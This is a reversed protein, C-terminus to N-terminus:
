YNLGIMCSEVTFYGHKGYLVKFGHLASYLMRVM